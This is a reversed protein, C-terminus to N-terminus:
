IGKGEPVLTLLWIDPVAGLRLPLISTGLGAGVIIHRKSEIIHGCGYRAGTTTAYSLAGIIPLVIQGCHTHGAILIRASDPLLPVVDPSHSITLVPQRGIGAFALPINARRVYIDDIGVIAIQERRVHANELVTVGNTRVAAAFRPDGRWYDHNGMVAVTGLRARLGRLPATASAADFRRSAMMKDSVFDGTILVLDPRLANVQKVIHALREPPMDPGAVHIDSIAAVVIPASGAALGALPLTARRVVPDAIAVHHMYAIALLGLAIVAALLRVSRTM